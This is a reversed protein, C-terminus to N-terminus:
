SKIGWISFTSGADFSQASSISLIVSTIASTNAWRGAIAMANYNNVAPDFDERALITKHKDTASYDQIQVRSIVQANYAGSPFDGISIYTTTASNSSGGSGEGWMRVYSYNSGSDSNFQLQFAYGNATGTKKAQAVVVLDRFEQSIDSFTVSSASSALTITEIPTYTNVAPSYTTM